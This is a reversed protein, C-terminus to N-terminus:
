CIIRFCLAYYNNIFLEVAVMDGFTERAGVRHSTWSELSLWLCKEILSLDLAQNQETVNSVFVMFSYM